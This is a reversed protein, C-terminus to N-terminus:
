SRRGVPGECCFFFYKQVNKQRAVKKSAWKTNKFFTQIRVWLAATALLRAVLKAVWRELRLWVNRGIFNSVTWCMKQGCTLVGGGGEGGGNEPEQETPITMSNHGLQPLYIGFIRLCNKFVVKLSNRLRGVEQSLWHQQDPDADNQSFPDPDPDSHFAPDPDM